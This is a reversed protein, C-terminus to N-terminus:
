PTPEAEGLPQPIPNVEDLPQLVLEAEDSGKSIIKGRRVGSLSGPMLRPAYFGIPDVSGRVVIPMPVHAWPCAGLALSPMSVDQCSRHKGCAM